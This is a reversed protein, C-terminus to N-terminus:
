AGGMGYYEGEESSAAQAWTKVTGTEKPEFVQYPTTIAADHLNGICKQKATLFAFLKPNDTPLKWQSILDLSDHIMKNTLSLMEQQSTFIEEASLHVKSPMASLIRPYTTLNLLPEVDSPYVLGYHKDFEQKCFNARYIHRAFGNTLLSSDVKAHAPFTLTISFPSNTPVSNVRVWTSLTSGEYSWSFPLKPSWRADEGAATPYAFPDAPIAEEQGGNKSVSVREPIWTSPFRFSYSRQSPFEPFGQGSPRNISCTISDVSSSSSFLGASTIKRAWKCKITTWFYAGSEYAVTLGDDDYLKFSSTFSFGNGDNPSPSFSVGPIVTVTLDRPVESALGLVGLDPSLTLQPIIAGPRYFLPFEHLSFNRMIYMGEGDVPSSLKQFSGHEIWSGPPVWFTWNVMTSLQHLRHHPPYASANFIPAAIPSIWMDPGFFYQHQPQDSYASNLNFFEYYMPRILQVGSDHAIRNCTSIYPVLSSRLRFLQRMM